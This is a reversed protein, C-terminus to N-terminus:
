LSMGKLMECIFNVIAEVSYRLYKQTYDADESIQSISRKIEFTGSLKQGYQIAATQGLKGGDAGYFNYQRYGGIYTTGVFEGDSVWDFRKAYNRSMKNNFNTAIHIPLGYFVPEYWYLLNINESNDPFSHFDITVSIDKNNDLISKMFQSEKESLPATGGYSQSTTASNGYWAAPFNRALDVGNGNKRTHKKWGDPNACPNIIFKVNHRLLELTEDAKWNDIIDKMAYYVAQTGEKEDGHIACNIFITPIKIANEHSSMEPNFTYYAMEEGSDNNGLVTKTVYTPHATALETFLSHVQAPTLNEINKDEYTRETTFINPINMDFIYRDTQSIGVQYEAFDDRTKLTTAKYKGVGEFSDGEVIGQVVGQQDLTNENTGTTTSGILYAANEPSVLTMVYVGAANNGADQRRIFVGNADFWSAYTFYSFTYNTSPKVAIRETSFYSYNQVEEGSSNIVVFPVKKYSNYLNESETFLKNFANTLNTEDSSTDSEIQEEISLIRSEHNEATNELSIIRDEYDAPVFAHGTNEWVYYEGPESYAIEENVTVIAGEAISMASIRIYITTDHGAATFTCVGDVPECTSPYAQTGKKVFESDYGVALSDNTFSISKTRITDGKKAEIFGTVFRNDYKVAAGDSSQLRYGDQYGLGGNFPQGDSGIALPLRNTFLPEALKYKKVYAYLYGDPLVYLKSTDTCEEVSNAFEPKLQGRKALESAIYAEAEEKGLYDVGKQPTKGNSGDKGNKVTLDKGDSFTVVNNGGSETSETVSSVTISKGAEGNAKITTDVNGIYWNGNEGIYPTYGNKVNLKSGDSFTIVNIGGSESSEQTSVISISEGDFEGSEKAEALLRELESALEAHSAKERDLGDILAKIAVGQAASLAKKEGGTVLDNVIDAYSVKSTTINEILNKNNKIYAVIESLQDLTGDDSDAIASLRQALESVIKRLDAHASTDANHASVAQKATGKPDADISSSDFVIEASFSQGAANTVTIRNTAPDFSVGSLAGGSISALKLILEPSLKDETVAKPQITRTSVSQDAFADTSLSKVAIKPMTVAGDAIRDTTATLDLTIFALVKGTSNTLRVTVTNDSTVSSIRIGANEMLTNINEANLSIKGNLYRLMQVLTGAAAGPVTVYLARESLYGSYIARVLDGLTAINADDTDIKIYDSAGDESITDHIENIKEALFVSLKDFWAKLEQATLGGVGYQKRTNPRDSLASVGKAALEAKSVPRLKKVESM